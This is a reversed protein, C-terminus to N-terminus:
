QNLILQYLTAVDGVNIQGDHNLDSIAAEPAAPNIIANYLASVDGTNVINDLNIDGPIPQPEAPVCAYVTQIEPIIVNYERSNTMKDLSINIYNLTIPFNLMDNTDIWSDLPFDVATVKGMPVSDPTIKQASLSGGPVKVSFSVGTVKLSDPNILLRLTDPLSWLTYEKQLKIYNTRANYGTFSIKLGNDGEKTMSYNKGGSTTLKVEAPDINQTVAMAHSEPIQVVVRTTGSFDGVAGTITAEGNRKGLVIGDNAGVEVISPDSSTWSFVSPELLLTKGDVVSQTQATWPRIGDNIVSDCRMSIDSGEGVVTMPTSFSVDGLTVTLPMTGSGTAIFVTDDRVIGLEPPCSLHFGRVDTDILVGYQNYGYVKPTYMGYKPVKLSWDVFRLQALTNDDPASHVAYFANADARESGDSPQNRIGLVDTYLASSGGGDVNVAEWAGAMRIIEGVVSTRAGASITSRGDVVLFYATNGDQSYGIASRPHRASADGRDGESDLVVGDGVIKPNGSIVQAPNISQNGFHWWTSLTVQDGAKLNQIFPAASGVGRLVFGGEPITMDGDASPAGTIIMSFSGAAQFTDGDALRAQVEYGANTQDTSGYYRDTFVVVSNSCASESSYTNVGSLSASAGGPGTITGGFVFPNCYMHGDTDVIFNKYASANNRARYIEGDVVTAGVPTGVVSVGRSTTGGTLFFDGNIGAFYRAGEHSKRRAMNGVTENGAVKDRACVAALSVYPNSVDVSCYFARMDSASVNVAHFLLSTQTTGPGIPAHFLTDMYYDVGDLTVIRSASASLSM